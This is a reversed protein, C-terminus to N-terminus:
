FDFDVTHWDPPDITDNITSASTPLTFTKRVFFRVLHPSGTVTITGEIEYILEIRLLQPYVNHDVTVEIQVDDTSPNGFAGATIGSFSQTVHNIIRFNFPSEPGGTLLANFSTWWALFDATITTVDGVSRVMAVDVVDAIFPVADPWVKRAIVALWHKRLPSLNKIDVAVGADDITTGMVANLSFLADFADIEPNLSAAIHGMFTGRRQKINADVTNGSTDTEAYTEPITYADLTGTSLADVKEVLAYVLDTNCIQLTGPPILTTKDQRYLGMTLVFNPPTPQGAESEWRRAVIYQPYQVKLLVADGNPMESEVGIEWMVTIQYLASVAGAMAALEEDIYDVFEGYFDDTTNVLNDGHILGSGRLWLFKESGPEPTLTLTNETGPKVVQAKVYAVQTNFSGVVGYYSFFANVSAKEIRIRSRYASHYSMIGKPLFSEQFYDATSIDAKPYINPYDDCVLEQTAGSWVEGATTSYLVILVRYRAGVTLEGGPIRFAVDCQSTSPSTFSAPAYIAGSIQAQTADSAPISAISAEYDTLFQTNGNIDDVRLLWARVASMNTTTGGSVLFTLDMLNDELPSLSSSAVIFNEDYKAQHPLGTPKHIKSAIVQGGSTTNTFSDLRWAYATNAIDRGFWKLNIPATFEPGGNTRTVTVFAPPPSLPPGSPFGSVLTVISIGTNGINFQADGELLMHEGQNKSALFRNVTNVFHPAYNPDESTIYLRFVIDVRTASVVQLTASYNRNPEQQFTSFFEMPAAGAIAGGTALRFGNNSPAPNPSGPLTYMKWRFSFMRNFVTSTVDSPLGSADIRFTIEVFAGLTGELTAAVPVLNAGAESISRQTGLLAPYKYPM